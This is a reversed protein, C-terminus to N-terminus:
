EGKMKQVVALAEDVSKVVVVNGRWSAHWKVQDPTLKQESPVRSGDKVEMLVNKSAIGVLLDPTGQGVTHLPQVSCGVARLAKIIEPQNADIRAARM